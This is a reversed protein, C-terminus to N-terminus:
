QNGATASISSSAAISYKNDNTGVRNLERILDAVGEELLDRHDYVEQTTFLKSVSHSGEDMSLTMTNKTYSYLSWYRAPGSNAWDTLTTVARTSM